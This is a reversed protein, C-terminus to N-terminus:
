GQTQAARTIASLTSLTTIVEPDLPVRPHPRRRRHAGRKTFGRTSPGFFSCDRNAHFGDLVALYSEGPVGFACEMGQAVHCEVILRGAHQASM